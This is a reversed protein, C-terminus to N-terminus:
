SVPRQRPASYSAPHAAVSSRHASSRRTTTGPPSTSYDGSDPRGRRYWDVELQTARLGPTPPIHVTTVGAARARLAMGLDKTVLTTPLGSVVALWECFQIIMGDADDPRSPGGHVYAEVTVTQMESSIPESRADIAIPLQSALQKIAQRALQATTSNGQRKLRDLEHIVILPVVLRVAITAEILAAWQVTDFLEDRDLIMNTDARRPLGAQEGM